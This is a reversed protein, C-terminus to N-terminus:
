IDPPLPMNIVLPDRGEFGSDTGNVFRWCHVWGDGTTCVMEVKGDGDIDRILPMGEIFGKGYAYGLIEGKEDFMHITGTMDAVIVDLYGNGTIDHFRATSNINDPTLNKKWEISMDDSQYCGFDGRRGGVYIAWTKDERYHPMAGCAVDQWYQPRGSEALVAGTDRDMKLIKGSRSAQYIEYKGGTGTPAVQPTGDLLGDLEVDWIIAGTDANHCRLHKDYCGWLVYRGGDQFLDGIWPWAEIAELGAHKWILAGTHANIKYVHSDQSTAYLYWTDGEKILQGAHMFIKDSEYAPNIKYTDGVSPSYGTGNDAVAVYTELTNGGSMDAIKLKGGVAAGSTFEIEANDNSEETTTAPKYRLFARNDWDKTNDEISYTDVATITGTGERDYVNYFVFAGDYSGDANVRKITGANCPVYIKLVENGELDVAQMRGYMPGDDIQSWIEEGTHVDLAYFLWNQSCFLIAKKPTAVDLVTYPGIPTSYNIEKQETQFSWVKEIYTTGSTEDEQNGLGAVDDLTWILVGDPDRLTLNYDGSLYIIAEGRADLEIPNDHAITCDKDSYAAKPTSTGSEFTYLLGGTLLNGNDDFAKFRPYNLLGIGM